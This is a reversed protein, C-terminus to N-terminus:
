ILNAVASLKLQVWAIIDTCYEAAVNMQQNFVCFLVFCGIAGLAFMVVRDAHALSGIFWLIFAVVLVPVLITKLFINLKKYFDFIPQALM